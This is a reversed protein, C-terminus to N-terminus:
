VNSFIHIEEFATEIILLDSIKWDRAMKEYDIYYEIARPIECQNATSEECFDAVSTYEGFYRDELARRAEDIENYYEFLKAGLAGCEEIFAAIECVSQLGQYETISIGEFGEYDHIAYEEANPISSKAFMEKIADLIDNENQNADIWAGHLIGNNYSALCAIYIRITM